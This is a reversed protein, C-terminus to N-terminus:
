VGVKQYLLKSLCGGICLLSPFVLILGLTFSPSMVLSLALSGAIAGVAFCVKGVREEICTIVSEFTDTIEQPLKELDLQEFYQVEQALFSKIFASRMAMNLEAAASHLCVNQLYGLLLMGGSFPLGYVLVQRLSDYADEDAAAYPSLSKILNAIVVAHICGVVGNSLAAVIGLAFKIKTWISTYKFTTMLGVSEAGAQQTYFGSAVKQTFIDRMTRQRKMPVDEEVEFAETALRPTSFPAETDLYENKHDSVVRKDKADKLSESDLGRSPSANAEFENASVDREDTV